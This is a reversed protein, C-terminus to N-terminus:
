VDKRFVIGADVPTFGHKAYLKQAAENQQMCQLEIQAIGQQQLERVAEGLLFTALGQRRYEKSTAMRMLGMARVGWSSALPEMDWFTAVAAPPGGDKPVLEFRMRETIGITCAEWWTGTPPDPVMQLKFRKRVLMQTRDILPRYGATQRHMIVTREVERYGVKPFLEVLSTHSQLVGPLESGGYLGLYFPNLPEICGGYLQKAGRRVLYDESQVLLERAIEDRQAHGAVMLMCTVGRECSLDSGATNPGFGAHVFGIPQEDEVAVILGQRDFYPKSLVLRDLIAVSMPQMLARLPPQARWVEALHPPDTNRFPRYRIL